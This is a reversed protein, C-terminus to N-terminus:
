CSGYDYLRRILTALGRETRPELCWISELLPAEDATRVFRSGHGTEAGGTNLKQAKSM